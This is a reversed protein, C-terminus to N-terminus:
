TIAHPNTKTLYMINLVHNKYMMRGRTDRFLADVRDRDQWEAQEGVVIDLGESIESSCYSLRSLNSRFLVPAVGRWSRNRASKVRLDSLVSRAILIMEVPLHIREPDDLSRSVRRLIRPRIQKISARALRSGQVFLVHLPTVQAQIRTACHSRPDSPSAHPANNDKM